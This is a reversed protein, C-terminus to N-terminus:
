ASHTIPNMDYNWSFNTLQKKTFYKLAKKNADQEQWKHMHKSYSNHSASIVSPIGIVFLYLPGWIRSQIVHGFEHQFLHNSEEKQIQEDGIIFPSLSMGGFHGSLKLSTTGNKYLVSKVRNTWNLLLAISLGILMQPLEWTFRSIFQITRVWANQSKDTLFLGKWLALSIHVKNKASQYWNQRKFISIATAALIDDILFM